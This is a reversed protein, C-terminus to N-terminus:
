SFSPRIFCDNQHSLQTLNQEANPDPRSYNAFNAYNASYHHGYHHGSHHGFYQGDFTGRPLTRRDILRM